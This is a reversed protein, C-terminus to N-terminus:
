SLMWKQFWVISDQANNVIYLFIYVRKRGRESGQARCLKAGSFFFGAGVLRHINIFTSPVCTIKAFLFFPKHIFLHAAPSKYRCVKIHKDDLFRDSASLKMLDIHYANM